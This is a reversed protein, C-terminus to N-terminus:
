KKSRPRLRMKKAEMSERGKSRTRYSQKVDDEHQVRERKRKKMGSGKECKQIDVQDGSKGSNPHMFSKADTNQTTLECINEDM